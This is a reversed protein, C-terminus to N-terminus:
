DTIQARGQGVFLDTYHSSIKKFEEKLDDDPTRDDEGWFSWSSITSAYYQQLNDIDKPVVKLRALALRAVFRPDQFDPPTRVTLMDTMEGSQLFDFVTRHLFEVTHSLIQNSESPNRNVRLLDLCSKDLWLRTSDAMEDLEASSYHEIDHHLIDVAHKINSSEMLLWYNVFSPASSDGDQQALMVSLLLACATDSGDRWTAPIRDFIMEKFYDELGAPTNRLTLTLKKLRRGASARECLDRSVLIVWLFIGEATDLCENIFDQAHETMREFDTHKGAQSESITLRDTFFAKIDNRTLDQLRLLLEHKFRSVLATWPRSSFCIKVNQQASLNLIIDAIEGMNGTYEDLGDIFFAVNTDSLDKLWGLSQLLEKKAWPKAAEAEPGNWRESCLIVAVAPKSAIVDYLMSQYLAQDLKQESRGAIWFFHDGVILERSGAWERLFWSTNPHDRVYKMLTSKGSGAKGQIWFRNVNTAKLWQALVSDDELVWEFTSQAASPITTRRDKMHQYKLGSLILDLRRRGDETQLYSLLRSETARMDTIQGSISITEAHVREIAHSSSKANVNQIDLFRQQLDQIQIMQRNQADMIAQQLDQIQRQRDTLAGLIQSKCDLLQEANAIQKREVIEVMDGYKAKQDNRPKM